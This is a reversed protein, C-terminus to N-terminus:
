FRRSRRAGKFACLYNDSLCMGLQRRPAEARTKSRIWRTGDFVAWSNWGEIFKCNRGHREVFRDSLGYETRPLQCLCADLNVTLTDPKQKQTVMAKLDAWRNVSNNGPCTEHHCGSSIGGTAFQIIFAQKEDGERWPCENFIWLWGGDEYATPGSVDLNYKDIFAQVNLKGPPPEYSTLRSGPADFHKPPPPTESYKEALEVLVERPIIQIDEPVTLLKAMRHPRDETSDGKCVPTGYLKFIQGPSAVSTDVKVYNDSFMKDLHQLCRHVLEADGVELEIRGLAHAGNGSDGEVFPYFGISKLFDQVERSRSFAAEKEGDTASIGKPRNSDFDLPFWNLVLIDKDSTTAEAAILRNSARAFLDPICPNLTVYFGTATLISSWCSAPIISSRFYGSVTHPRKWDLTSAKLIRIETTQGSDVRLIQLSREIEALDPRLKNISM